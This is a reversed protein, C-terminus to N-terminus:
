KELSTVVVLDDLQEITRFAHRKLCLGPGTAVTKGSVKACEKPVDDTVWVGHTPQLMVLPGNRSLRDRAARCKETTLLM